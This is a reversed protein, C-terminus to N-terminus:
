NFYPHALMREAMQRQSVCIYRMFNAETKHGTIKMISLTDFGALYLNTAFTRRATHNTIRQWKQQVYRNVVGGQTRKYVAQETFGALQCLEKIYENMKQDAYAKPFGGYREIIAQVRPHIPIFVPDDTKEPIIKLMRGNEVIHHNDLIGLDSIRLGTYCGVLFVDRTRMLQGSLDNISWLTDLETDSLYVNEVDEDYARFGEHEFIRNQHLGQRHTDRLIAKFIKVDKGITNLARGSANLHAIWDRYLDITIDGIRLDPRFLRLQDRFAEYQQIRGDSIRKGDRSTRKGSRCQAIFTDVMSYFDVAPLTRVKPRAHFEADFENGLFEVSLAIELRKAKDLSQELFRDFQDLITNITKHRTKLGEPVNRIKVRQTDNDWYQPVVTQGTSYRFPRPLKKSYSLMIISSPRDAHALFFGM